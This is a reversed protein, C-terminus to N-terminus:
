VRDRVSARGIESEVAAKHLIKPSAGNGEVSIADLSEAIRRCKEPDIDVATIDHGDDILAKAIHFGVEGAGILVIKM